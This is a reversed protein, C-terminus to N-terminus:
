ELDILAQQNAALLFSQASMMKAVFNVGLAVIIEFLDVLGQFNAFFTRHAARWSSLM